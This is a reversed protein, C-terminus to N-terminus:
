IGHDLWGITNPMSFLNKILIDLKSISYINYINNEMTYMPM